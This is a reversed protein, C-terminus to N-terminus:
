VLPDAQAAAAGLGRALLVAFCLADFIASAM